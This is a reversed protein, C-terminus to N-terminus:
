VNSLVVGVIWFAAAGVFTQMRTELGLIRFSGTLIAGAMIVYGLNTFGYGLIGVTDYPTENLSNMASIPYLIALASIWPFMYRPILDSNQEMFEHQSQELQDSQAYLRLRDGTHQEVFLFPGTFGGNPPEEGKRVIRWIPNSEFFALADYPHRHVLKWFTLRGYVVFFVALLVLVGVFICIATLTPTM